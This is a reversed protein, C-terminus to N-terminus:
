NDARGPLGQAEPFNPYGTTPAFLQRLIGPALASLPNVSVQPDAGSGSVRYNAAFLGQSGGGLLAGLIPVNSFISNLAYAPAVTGHLEMRDRDPEIWGDATIGLSEGYALLRDLTIRDGSMEIDGRLNFFPLSSGSIASSLGTFSPLALVRALIPARSVVYNKGDIHARLIRRGGAVRTLKGAVQLSGGSVGDGIDFLKLTDGFDDSQLNLDDANAAGTGSGFQLSLKHGDPFTGAIQGSRWLGGTRQLVVSV